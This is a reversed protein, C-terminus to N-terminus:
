NSRHTISKTISSNKTDFSGDNGTASKIQTPKFVVALREGSTGDIIIGDNKNHRVETLIEDANDDFYISAAEKTKRYLPKEIKLYAPM